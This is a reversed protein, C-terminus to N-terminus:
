LYIQVVGGGPKGPLGAPVGPKTDGPDPDEDPHYLKTAETEMKWSGTDIKGSGTDTKWNGTDMRQSEHDM